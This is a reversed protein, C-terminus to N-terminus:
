IEITVDGNQNLNKSTETFRDLRRIVSSARGGGFVMVLNDPVVGSM